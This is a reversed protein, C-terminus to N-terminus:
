SPRRGCCGKKTEKAVGPPPARKKKDKGRGMSFTQPSAVGGIEGGPPGLNVRTKNNGGVLAQPDPIDNAVIASQQLPITNPSSRSAIVLPPSSERLRYAVLASPVCTPACAIASAIARM